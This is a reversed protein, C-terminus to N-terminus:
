AVGHGGVEVPDEFAVALDRNGVGPGDILQNGLRPRHRRGPAERRRQAGRRIQV